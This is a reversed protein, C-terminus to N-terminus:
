LQRSRPTGDPNWTFIRTSGDISLGTKEGDSRRPATHPTFPEGMRVNGRRRMEAEEEPTLPKEFEIIWRDPLGEGIRGWGKGVCFSLPFDPYNELTGAVPVQKRQCVWRM